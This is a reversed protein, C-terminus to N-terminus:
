KVCGWMVDFRVVAAPLLNMKLGVKHHPAQTYLLKIAQTLRCQQNSTVYLDSDSQHSDLSVQKIM